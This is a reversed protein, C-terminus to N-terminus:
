FDGVAM